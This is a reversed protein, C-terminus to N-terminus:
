VFTKASVALSSLAPLARQLKRWLRCGERERGAVALVRERRSVGGAVVVCRKEVGSM